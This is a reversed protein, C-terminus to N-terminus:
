SVGKQLLQKLRPKLGDDQHGYYVQMIVSGFSENGEILEIGNPTIAVDWAVIAIQPVLKAAEKVSCTIVGNM